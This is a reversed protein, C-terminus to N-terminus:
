LANSFMHWMRLVRTVEHQLQLARESSDSTVYFSVCQHGAALTEAAGVFDDFQSGFLYQQGVAIWRMHIGIVFTNSCLSRMRLLLASVSHRLPMSPIILYNFLYFNMTADFDKRV